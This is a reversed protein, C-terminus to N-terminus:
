DQRDDWGDEARLVLRKRRQRFHHWLIFARGYLSHIKWEKPRVKHGPKRFDLRKRQCGSSGYTQQSARGARRGRRSIRQNQRNSSRPPRDPEACIGHVLNTGDPTPVSSHVGASDEFPLLFHKVEATNPNLRAVENGRGYYPMWLNGDKDPTASWPLGKSGSVDYEVYAINMAEESFSRVTDKYGPVDAPSRPATPDNGFMHSLYSVVADAKEDDFRPLQWWMAKRMYNIRDRWGAETRHTLSMVNQFGHCVMCNSMLADKGQGDPLLKRGQSLSIDSWRVTGPQLAFDLSVNQDSDLKVGSQPEAKYGVARIQIQYSGAPLREIRYHGQKDSLVSYLVNNLQNKAQVFAGMYPDGGPGKVTGAVTAARACVSGAAILAFLALSSRFSCM